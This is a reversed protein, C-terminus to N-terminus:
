PAKKLAEGYANCFDPNQLCYEPQVAMARLGINILQERHIRMRDMMNANDCINSQSWMREAFASTRPWIKVQYDNEDATETWLAVESGLVYNAEKENLGDAPDYNYLTQWTKYPDCWSKDGTLWNGFGCDLYYKNSSSDIIRYGREIAKKKSDTTWMQVITNQQDLDINSGVVIEEWVIAQKGNTAVAAQVFKEFSELYKLTNAEGGYCNANIEDGGIHIHNDPFLRKSASFISNIVSKINNLKATDNIALQGCPPENCFQPTQTDAGNCTMIEPYANGWSFTHGPMDYEPIVRIGRDAAYAVIDKIDAESYIDDISYAGQEALAPNESFQFPFSQSDIIHWHLVNLKTYAMGDLVKKILGAPLFHRSSDILIGRHPFRPSDNVVVPSNKIEGSVTALQDLTTLAHLAGYVTEARINIKKKDISLTYSEDIELQPTSYSVEDLNIEIENIYDVDLAKIRKHELLREFAATLIDTKAGNGTLLTGNSLYSTESGFNVSRPLPVLNAAQSAVPSCQKPENEELSLVANPGPCAALFCLLLLPIFKM